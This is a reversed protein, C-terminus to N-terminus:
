VIPLGHYGLGQGQSNPATAVTYLNRSSTGPPSTGRYTPYTTPDDPNQANYYLCFADVFMLLAPAMFDCVYHGLMSSTTEPLSSVFTGQGSESVSRPVQDMLSNFGSPQRNSASWASPAPPLQRRLYFLLVAIVFSIAAISGAVGGAIAGVNSSHRVIPSPTASNSFPGRSYSSSSSHSLSSSAPTSPYTNTSISESASPGPITGPGLEPNGLSTLDMLSGCQRPSVLSIGVVSPM